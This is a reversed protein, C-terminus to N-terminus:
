LRHLGSTRRFEGRLYWSLGRRAEHNGRQRQRANGLRRSRHTEADESHALVEYSAPFLAGDADSAVSDRCRHKNQQRTGYFQDCVPRDKDWVTSRPSPPMAEVCLLTTSPAHGNSIPHRIEPGPQLSQNLQLSWGHSIWYKAVLLAPFRFTIQATQLYRPSRRLSHKRQRAPLSSSSQGNHPPLQNAWASQAKADTIPQIILNNRCKLGCGPKVAASFLQKRNIDSHPNVKTKTQLLIVSPTVQIWKTTAFITGHIEPNKQSFIFCHRNAFM